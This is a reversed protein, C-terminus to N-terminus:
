DISFDDNNLKSLLNLVDGIDMADNNWSFDIYHNKQGWGDGAESCCIYKLYIGEVDDKLIMQKIDDFVSIIHQKLAKKQDERLKNIDTDLIHTM